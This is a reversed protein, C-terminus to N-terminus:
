DSCTDAKIQFSQGIHIPIPTRCGDSYAPHGYKRRWDECLCRAVRGLLHSALHPVKVWPLLLLRTNNTVYGLRRQRTPADWGIHQDRAQCQWAAAGFLVCALLRGHRDRALYGLNEGVTGRHSLYHHHHLLADFLAREESCARGSVESLTVPMLDSLSTAIPPCAEPLAPLHKLRMRNGPVSRRAPLQIWGRREIKLLFTRAAMDKLQGAPNRWDWITALHQSVQRRSWDPHERLLARVQSLEAEGISRGQIIGHEFV